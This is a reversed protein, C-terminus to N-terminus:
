EKSLEQAKQANEFARPDRVCDGFECRWRRGVFAGSDDGIAEAPVPWEGGTRAFFWPLFAEAWAERITEPEVAAPAEPPRQLGVSAATAPPTNMRKVEITDSRSM